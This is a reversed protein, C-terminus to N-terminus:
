DFILNYILVIISIVFYLRMKTKNFDFFNQITELLSTPDPDNQTKCYLKRNNIHMYNFMLITSLLGSLFLIDRVYPVLDLVFGLLKFPPISTIFNLSNGLGYCILSYQLLYKIYDLNITLNQCEVSISLFKYVILSALILPIKIFKDLDFYISVITAVFPLVLFFNYPKFEPTNALPKILQTARMSNFLLGGPISGLNTFLPLMLWDMDSSYNFNNSRVYFQGFPIFPLVYDM